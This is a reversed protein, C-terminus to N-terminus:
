DLSPLNFDGVIAFEKEVVFEWLFTVLRGDQVFIDSPLRYDGLM